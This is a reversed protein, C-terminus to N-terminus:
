EDRRGAQADCWAAFTGAHDQLTLKELAAQAIRLDNPAAVALAAAIRRADWGLAQLGVMMPTPENM